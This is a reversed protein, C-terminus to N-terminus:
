CVDIFEHALNESRQRCLFNIMVTASRDVVILLRGRRKPCPSGIMVNFLVDFRQNFVNSTACRKSNEIQTAIGASIQGSENVQTVLRHTQVATLRKNVHGILESTARHPM